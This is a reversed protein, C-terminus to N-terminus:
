TNPITFRRGTKLGPATEKNRTTQERTESAILLVLRGEQDILFIKTTTSGSDVDLFFDKGKAESFDIEPIQNQEHKKMWADFDARGAFLSSLRKAGSNIESNIGDDSM